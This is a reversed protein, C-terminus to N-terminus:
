TGPASGVLRDKAAANPPTILVPMQSARLVKTSVSGLLMRAAAGAGHTGMAIMSPGGDSEAADLIGVAPEDVVVRVEPSRGLMTRLRDARNDLATRVSALATEVSMGPQGTEAGYFHPIVEIILVACQLLKGMEVALDAAAEAEVSGDDAIVIRHPPWQEGRLILVPRSSHHVLEESTSGLVLRRVRGLGRSGMVILGADVEDAVRLIEAAPHGELLHEGAVVVGADALRAVEANLIRPAELASAEAFNSPLLYGSNTLALTPVHWSYAVHLAAGSRQALDAAARGALVADASGDTALLIVTPFPNM